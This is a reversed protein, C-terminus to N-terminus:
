CEFPIFLQLLCYKTNVYDTKHKILFFFIFLIEHKMNWKNENNPEIWENRLFTKTLNRKASLSMCSYLPVYVIHECVCLCVRSKLSQPGISSHIYTYRYVYVNSYKVWRGGEQNLDIKSRDTVIFSIRKKCHFLFTISGLMKRLYKNIEIETLFYFSCNIDM